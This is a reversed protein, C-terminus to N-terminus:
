YHDAYDDIEDSEFNGEYFDETMNSIDYAEREIAADSEAQELYEDMYQDVNENTVNSNKRVKREIETIKDMLDREDDYTEKSYSTLGKQLGKSWVGLKNIKLITDADREEDTMEKLRDTFTDKERETIKFVKDMIDDYSRDIIDKHDHMINLYTLLLNATKVKLEKQNAQLAVEKEFYRAVTDSKLEREELDEITFTDEVSFEGQQDEAYHLMSENESLNIYETLLLLFYHQFLLHSTTKDFVFHTKIEGNKIESYYPTEEALLMLNKANIQIADLVNVIVKESYFPRLRHYYEKIIKKVDKEHNQSLGWYKGIQTKDYDVDNLIINPFLKYFNQLYTKVFQIFNYTNTDSIIASHENDENWTFLETLLTDIYKQRKNTISNNKKIFDTVRSAMSENTKALHNKFIRMEKTDTEVSTDFTDLLTENILKRLAPYVLEEDQESFHELLESIRQVPPSLRPQLNISVINSRNVIQLLRLFDDNTYNRGDRKLKAIIENISDNQLIYDPKTTCLAVLDENIPKLSNFKCYIIFARYITEENFEQTSLVPYVNKTNINSFLMQAKSIHNIDELANSLKDVIQNFSAIEADENIFYSITTLSSNENCCANEVFPENAANTLLLKKRSIIHQIKEQIALSFQIIKTKMVLIKERQGTAGSKLDDRLKSEFETSVNKLGQIKFPFLPPLFQTWNSIDHESPISETPNTLLYALKEEFKRTVGPLSLLVKQIVDKIKDAIFTEKRKMLVSWPDTNNRIKYAICALYTVSSDDGAGEIPFGTFSRVCGPFTKRTHLSPINSQAAILFMGFTTYLIVSNYVDRYSPPTKGQKAMKQMELKHQAETPLTTLLATTVHQIIFERQDEINIGMSTSLHSVINNIMKVELTETKLVKKQTSIIADGADQEMIARSSIKFGDDYGEEVDFDIKCIERGTHKDIWADGDDSLRGITQKLTEITNRYSEYGIQFANAIAFRFAPILEVGTKICYRWHPTEINSENYESIAERTFLNCFRIIDSQKKVYDTQGLIISLLKQYPSVILETEDEKQNNGLSFQKNNHQFKKYYDIENLKECISLCYEFQFKIETELEQKSLYYKKDFSHMIQDLSSEVLQKENIATTECLNNINKQVDICDQQVNCLLSGDNIFSEKDMKEDLVWTNNTRKYYQLGDFNNSAVDYLMAYDGEKVRKVGSILTEALYEAELQPIKQSAELKSILFNAFEDPDMKVMDKEYNDLLSYNTKDYKKDFYIEKGNDFLLEEMTRYQKAIVYTTCKDKDGNLAAKENGILEKDADFITSLNDPFMLPITAVSIANQYLRGSDKTIIKKLLESNTLPLSNPNTHYDYCEFVGQSLEFNEGNFINHIVSASPNLKRNTKMNKLFSFNRSRDIFTKNFQSIKENLFTNIINYQQYTLDDTYVLFPELYSVINVMSLKGHIYKKVLNFLIKIKPIITKLFMKYIKFQSMGAIKENSAEISLNYNKFESIYTKEDFELEEDLNDVNIQKVNTNNKLLKWYNLFQSNLISREMISTGPLNIRSFRITPEPLTMISKLSIMDPQTIPQRESIMKSGTIQIANLKDLGLNYKQIVFRKSRVSDNKVISSYFNDLNDIIVNINAGVEKEYIVDHLNEPNGYEFPTLLPDLEKIMTIYKNQEDPFSNSQYNGIINKVDTITQLTDLTIIDPYEDIEMSTDLDYVKKVNKVVPILWYLLTQFRLLDKVLPKYTSEKVLAADINGNADFDSFQHRLQKFREIMIHINNLVNTTRQVNPITSLMEDLLDNTQMEISFRLQSKDIDVYQTIPGLEESGFQIQDAKLIFERLQEKVNVVPVSFTPREEDLDELRLEPSEGEEAVPQETDTESIEVRESSPKERIEILEIPIEEPLGKYDFNIYITENDPYCRIEIMDEELNSIEGTIIIPADGGFYINVWVGPLLGNQRAYGKQENRSIITINTITGAGLIRDPTITLLVINLTQTNILRLKTQDIYDIIFENNNLEDNEPDIIKIVDDLQLTIVQQESPDDSNKFVVSNNSDADLEAKTDEVIEPTEEEEEQEPKEIEELNNPKTEPSDM